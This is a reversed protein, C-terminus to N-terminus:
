RVQPLWIIYFIRGQEPKHTDWTLYNPGYYTMGGLWDEDSSWVHLPVRFIQQKWGFSLIEPFFTKRHILDSVIYLLAPSPAPPGFMRLPANNEANHHIQKRSGPNKNGIFGLLSSGIQHYLLLSSEVFRRSSKVIVIIVCKALYASLCPLHAYFQFM